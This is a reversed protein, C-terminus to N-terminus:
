AKVIQYQGNEVIICIRTLVNGCRIMFRWYCKVQLNGKKRTVVEQIKMHLSIRSDM